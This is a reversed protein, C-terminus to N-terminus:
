PSAWYAGFLLKRPPGPDLYSLSLKFLILLSASRTSKSSIVQPEKPRKTILHSPGTMLHSCKILAEQWRDKRKEKELDKKEKELDRNHYVSPAAYVLQDLDRSRKAV